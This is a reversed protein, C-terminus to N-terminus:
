PHAIKSEYKKKFDYVNAQYSKTKLKALKESLGTTEVDIFKHVVNFGLGALFGGVSGILGGAVSGVAALSLPIGIKLGKVRRPITTDKWINGLIESLEKASKNIIDPHNTVIADNLSEAVKQLDYAAYEDILENCARLGQPAHTLTKLLFKGIECPLRIEKPQYVSPLIQATRIDELAFNMLNARLDTMPFVIFNKCVLLLFFASEPDNIMLNEIDNVFAYRGLKLTVFVDWSRELTLSFALPARDFGFDCRTKMRIFDLFKVKALAHFTHSAMKIEKESGYLSYPVKSYSPPNLEKFFPDLYDLGEYQTAPASLAVQLRGTEKIFDIIMPIESIKFYVREFLSMPIPTLTFILSGCFPVQTWLNRMKVAENTIVSAVPKQLNVFRNDPPYKDREFSFKGERIKEVLRECADHEKREYNELYEKDM